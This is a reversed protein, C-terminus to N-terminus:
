DPICKFSDHCDPCILFYDYNIKTFSFNDNDKKPGGCSPCCELLDAWGWNDGDFNIWVTGCNLKVKFQQSPETGNSFPYETQFPM